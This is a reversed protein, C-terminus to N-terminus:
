APEQTAVLRWNPDRSSIDREFTWVDSIGRVLKSDGDIVTGDRALTASILESVFRVTVSAKKGAVEAAVIEARDIGVFRSEIKEGAAERQEIVRVFGDYVERSLLPKLSSKDGRAFADIIMEYALKAGEVFDKPVFNPDAGAIQELGTAVVTGAEAYGQWIPPLPESKAMAPDLASQEEDKPFHIVNGNTTEAPNAEDKGRNATYPDFPPRENGTRSGLVSRLRWFVVAAIALLLLNLPDFAM